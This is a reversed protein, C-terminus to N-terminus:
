GKEEPLKPMLMWHTVKDITGSVKARWFKKGDYTWVEFYGDRVFRKGSKQKCCCLVRITEDHDICHKSIPPLTNSTTKIWGNLIKEKYSACSPYSCLDKEKTGLCVVEGNLNVDAYECQEM